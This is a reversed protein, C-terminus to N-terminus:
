GAPFLVARAWENKASLHYVLARSLGPTYAAAPVFGSFLVGREVDVCWAGLQHADPEVCENANLKQAIAHDPEVPLMLRMQLGSGLSAHKESADFELHAPMWVLDRLDEPTRVPSEPVFAVAGNWVRDRAPLFRQMAEASFQTKHCAM